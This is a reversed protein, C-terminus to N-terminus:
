DMMLQNESEQIILSPNAGFINTGDENFFMKDKVIEQFLNRLTKATSNESGYKKYSINKIYEFSFKNGRKAEYYSIILIKIIEDLKANSDDIRGNSHFEERLNLLVDYFQDYTLGTNLSIM